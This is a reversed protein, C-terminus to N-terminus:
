ERRSVMHPFKLCYFVRFREGNHCKEFDDLLDKSSAECGNRQGILFRETQIWERQNRMYHEQENPVMADFSKMEDVDMGKIIELYLFDTPNDVIALEEPTLKELRM